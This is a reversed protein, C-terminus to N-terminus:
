TGPVVTMRLSGGNNNNNNNNNNNCRSEKGEEDV